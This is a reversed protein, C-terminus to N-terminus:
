DTSNIINIKEDYNNFYSRTLISYDNFNSKTQNLINPCSANKSMFTNTTNYPNKVCPIKNKTIPEVRLLKSEIEKKFLMQKFEEVSYIRNKNTKVKDPSLYSFKSFKSSLFYNDNEM